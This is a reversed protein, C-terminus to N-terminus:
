PTKTYRCYLTTESPSWTCVLNINESPSPDVRVGIGRLYNVFGPLAAGHIYTGQYEPSNAEPIPQGNQTRSRDKQYQGTGSTADLKYVVSSGGALEVTIEISADGAGFFGAVGQAIQEGIRDLNSWGPLTGTALRDGLRGRLSFDRMVDYATTTSTLGPVGLDAGRVSVAAKMTTNTQLYFRHIDDFAAQIAPTVAVVQPVLTVPTGPEGAAADVVKFLKVQNTSFSTIVHEGVGLQKAKARFQSDSCGECRASKAEAYGALTCGLVLLVIALIREM